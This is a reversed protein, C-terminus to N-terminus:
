DLENLNTVIDLLERKVELWHRRDTASATDAHSHVVNHALFELKDIVDHLEM